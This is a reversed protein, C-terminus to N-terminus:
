QNSVGFDRLASEVLASLDSESKLVENHRDQALTYWLINGSPEVVAISLWGRPKQSLVQHGSTLVLADARYTALLEAVSGLGYEFSALKGPFMQPGYTHLQISRNVAVFLTQIDNIERDSLRRDARHVTLGKSALVQGVAQEAWRVADSSASEQWMPLGEPIEQFVVIQPPLLLITQINKRYEDYHPHYRYPSFGCASM